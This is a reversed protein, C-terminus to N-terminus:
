KQAKLEVKNINEDKALVMTKIITVNLYDQFWYRHKINLVEQKNKNTSQKKM